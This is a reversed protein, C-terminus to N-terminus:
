TSVPNSPQPPLAWFSIVPPSFYYFFRRSFKWWMKQITPSEALGWQTDLSVWCHKLLKCSSFYASINHWCISGYLLCTICIICAFLFPLRSSLYSAQSLSFRFRMAGNQRFFPVPIAPNWIYILSDVKVQAVLDACQMCKPGAEGVSDFHEHISWRLNKM